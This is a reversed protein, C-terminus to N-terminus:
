LDYRHTVARAAPPASGATRRLAPAHSVANATGILSIHQIQGSTKPRTVPALDSLHTQKSIFNEKNRLLRRVDAPRPAATQANM